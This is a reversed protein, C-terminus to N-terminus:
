SARAASWCETACRCAAGSREDVLLVRVPAGARQAATPAVGVVRHTCRTRRRKAREADAIAAGGSDRELVAGLATRHRRRRGLPIQLRTTVFEFLVRSRQQEARM